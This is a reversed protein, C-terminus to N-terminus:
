EGGHGLLQHAGWWLLAFGSPMAASGERLIKNVGVAAMLILLGSSFDLIGRTQDYVVRNLSDFVARLEKVAKPRPTHEMQKELGLLRVIAAFLL